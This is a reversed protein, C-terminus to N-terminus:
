NHVDFRTAARGRTSHAIDIHSCARWRVLARFLSPRVSTRFVGALRHMDPWFVGPKLANIVAKTAEWVATYIVKQKDTFKGNSPWSCTIDSGYCYYECGMDFLCMENDKVEKDNRGYHLTAGTHGAGSCSARAPNPKRAPLVGSATTINDALRFLAKSSSAPSAAFRQRPFVICGVVGDGCVLHV